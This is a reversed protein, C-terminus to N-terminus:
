TGYREAMRRHNGNYHDYNPIYGVTNQKINKGCYPCVRFGNEVPTVHHGMYHKHACSTGWNNTENDLIKWTCIDM